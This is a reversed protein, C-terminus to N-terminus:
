RSFWLRKNSLPIYNTYLCHNWTTKTTDAIVGMAGQTISCKTAKHLMGCHHISWTKHLHYVSSSLLFFYFIFTSYMIEVGSRHTHLLLFFVHPLLNLGFHLYWVIKTHASNLMAIGKEIPFVNKPYLFVHHYSYKTLSGSVSCKTTYLFSFFFLFFIQTVSIRWM